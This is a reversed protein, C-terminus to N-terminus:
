FESNSQDVSSKNALPTIPLSKSKMKQTLYSTDSLFKALKSNLMTSYNYYNEVDFFIYSNMKTASFTFKRSIPIDLYSISFALTPVFRNM